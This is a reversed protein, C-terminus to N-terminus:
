VEEPKQVWYGYPGGFTGPAHAQIAKWILGEYYHYADGSNTNGNINKFQGTYWLMIIEKTLASHVESNLIDSEVLQDLDGDRSLLEDYKELVSNLSNESFGQSLIEIYGSLLTDNLKDFGTLLKSLSLFVEKKKDNNMSIGKASVKLLFSNM